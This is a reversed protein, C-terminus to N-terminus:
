TALLSTKLRMATVISRVEFITHELDKNIVLYDYEMSHALEERAAALRRRVSEESDTGRGRLRAELIEMSPPGIFLFEACSAIVPDNRAVQRIMSAGQVDIDLLVDMGRPVYDAVESRLTGYSNGHVTAHEMFLGERVRREFEDMSIFHYDRGDVEGPRPPRTTCSVSFRIDPELKLLGATVCSKGVGSPGSVVLAVGHRMSKMM